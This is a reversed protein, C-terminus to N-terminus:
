ESGEEVSEAEEVEDIFFRDFDVRHYLGRRLKDLARGTRETTTEHVVKRSVLERIKFITTM